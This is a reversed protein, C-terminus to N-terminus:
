PEPRHRLRRVFSAVEEIQVASLTHGWAPMFPSKGAAAGGERITKVLTDNDLGTWTAEDTFDAPPAHLTSSLNYANFGDGAGETGHCPACKGRYIRAGAEIAHMSPEPHLAIAADFDESGPTGTTSRDRGPEPGATCSLVVSLGVLAAAIRHLGSTRM